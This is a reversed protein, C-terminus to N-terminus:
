ARGRRAHAVCTCYKISKQSANLSALYHGIIRFGKKNSEAHNISSYLSWSKLDTAWFSREVARKSTKRLTKCTCQAHAVCMIDPDNQFKKPPRYNTWLKTVGCAIQDFKVSQLVSNKLLRGWIKTLLLILWSSDFLFPKLVIRVNHADRM